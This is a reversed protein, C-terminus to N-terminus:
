STGTVTGQKGTAPSLGAVVERAVIIPLASLPSTSLKMVLGPNRGTGPM